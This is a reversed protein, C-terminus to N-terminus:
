IIGLKTYVRKLRHHSIDWTLRDEPRVEKPTELFMIIANAMETPEVAIIPFKADAFGGMKPAVVPKGLALYEGVKLINEPSTYESFTTWERPLLCIDAANIYNPVDEHAIWGVFVVRDALGESEVFQRLSELRPGDGVVLFRVDSNVSAVDLIITKLLESGELKSIKGLYLVTPNSNLQLVERMEDRSKSASFDSPPYNPVVITNRSGWRAAREAMPTNATLVIDSKRTMLWEIFLAAKSLVRSGLPEKISSFWPSRVDYIVVGRKFTLPIGVVDPVNYFHFLDAKTLAIQISILLYRVIGTLVRPSGRPVQYPRLVIADVGLKRLSQYTRRLRTMRRPETGIIVVQKKRVAM